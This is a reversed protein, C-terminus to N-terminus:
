HSSQMLDTATRKNFKQECKTDGMSPPVQPGAVHDKPICTKILTSGDTGKTPMALGKETMMKEMQAKQEPTMNDMEGLLSVLKDDVFRKSSTEWLGPKQSIGDAAIATGALCLSSALLTLSRKM